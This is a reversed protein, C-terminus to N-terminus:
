DTKSSSSAQTAKVLSSRKSKMAYLAADAAYLLTGVTDADCPYSAVGFSVSLFREEADKALLDRIRGAVLAAAVPGTEPLIVAFEDGGHRAATDVSRSCDTLIQALRCLARNGALHGFWDNIQKLGDLDLLLLSFERETRQSRCIESHLVEFLRRHNALGTLSDSSAQHRLQAELLRQETIDIAIVEQGAFNGNEDHVNRGSLRAKLITGDPRKWDVELPEIEQTEQPHPAALPGQSLKALLASEQNAALLQEKSAYGLMTVLTQNVDLLEGEANSLYIGYMPNDALARYLSRSHKLAKQAEELEQRLSKNNLARRVVMPLQSIHEIQVYDFADQATLAAVSEGTLGTTVSIVPTEQGAQHLLPLAESTIWNSGPHEVIVVDYTHCRLQETAHALSLAVDSSVTFQGKELERLCSGIVDAVRHVFLVRLSRQRHSSLSEPHMNGGSFPHENQALHPMSAKRPRVSDKSPVMLSALWGRRCWPLGDLVRHRNWQPCIIQSSIWDTSTAVNVAM